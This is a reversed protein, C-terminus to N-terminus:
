VNACSHWWHIWNKENKWAIIGKRILPIGQPFLSEDIDLSTPYGYVFVDNSISVDKILNVDKSDVHVSWGDWLDSVEINEEFKIKYGNNELTWVIVWIKIIAVDCSDHFITHLKIENIHLIRPNKNFWESSPCTIIVYDSYVGNTKKNFLVHKATVLYINEVNKILFGSWNAGGIWLTVM